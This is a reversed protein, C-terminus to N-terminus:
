APEDAPNLLNRFYPAIEAAAATLATDIEARAGESLQPQLTRLEGDLVKMADLHGKILDLHMRLDRVRRAARAQALLQEQNPVCECRQIFPHRQVIASGGCRPCVPTEQNEPESM